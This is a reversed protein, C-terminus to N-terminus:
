ESESPMGALRREKRRMSTFWNEVRRESTKLSMALQCLEKRKPNKNLQFSKTLNAKESKTWQKRNM